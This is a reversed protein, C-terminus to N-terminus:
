PLYDLPDVNLDNIIIEFHLHVASATGTRGMRAIEQGQWVRDYESVLLESCHAYLTVHGNDHSVKIYYGFTRNWGSIVVEGGDAAYIPDGTRGCIDIGKHNASGVIASRRGFRSTLNGDAPWIYTGISAMSQDGPAIISRDEAIRRYVGVPLIDEEIHIYDPNQVFISSAVTLESISANYDPEPDLTAHFHPETVDQPESTANGAAGPNDASFSQSLPTLMPEDAYFMEPINLEISSVYYNDPVVAPNAQHSDVSDRAFFSGNVSDRYDIKAGGNGATQLMSDERYNEDALQASLLIGGTSGIRDNIPSSHFANSAGGNAYQAFQPVAGTLAVTMVIAACAVATVLSIRRLRHRWTISSDFKFASQFKIFTERLRVASVLVFNDYCDAAAWVANEVRDHAANATTIILQTLKNTLTGPSDPASRRVTEM